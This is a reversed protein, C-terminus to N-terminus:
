LPLGHRHFQNAGCSVCESLMGPHYFVVAEGCAACKYEAMGVEEGALYVGHHLFDSQLEQWELQTLDTVQALEYWLKEPWLSPLTTESSQRRFTEIFLSTEYATLQNGAKWYAKLTESFNYLQTVQQQKALLIADSLGSLWQQYHQKFDSM